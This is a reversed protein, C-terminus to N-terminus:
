CGGPRSREVPLGFAPRLRAGLYTGALAAAFWLWGHLSGSAIGSFYAGVNCGFALRAGYGMLLGGLAAALAGRWTLNRLPGFSGALAAALFAGAVIGFNMVSTSQTFLSGELARKPYSWTWFDWASLDVGLGSAAKAGWLTYGFSITWPHGALALTAVNLLALLVAGWLLPWPGQLLRRLPRPRAAPVAGSALGIGLGGHRRREIVVTALAILAFLGLQLALAGPLGLSRSLSISGASPTTLWWPMHLSGILSGVIFFVLTVVMRGSGGGVTYLTGSACGGGLQMGLGFVFAGVLVSIGFPAVAGGVPRGFLTGADLVPLFIVTALALMVMQARLGAGRGDALFVRWSSAFGFAAHYLVVGFAGGLLYLVAPHWGYGAAIAAAGGFLAALAGGLLRADIRPLAGSPLRGGPLDRLSVDQARVTM